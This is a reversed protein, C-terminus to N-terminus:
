AKRELLRIIKDTIKWIFFIFLFILGIPILLIGILITSICMVAYVCTRRLKSSKGSDEIGQSDFDKQVTLCNNNDNKIILEEEVMKTRRDSCPVILALKQKRSGSKRKIKSIIVAQM